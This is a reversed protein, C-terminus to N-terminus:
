KIIEIHPFKFYFYKFWFWHRHWWSVDGLFLLIGPMMISGGIGEGLEVSRWSRWLRSVGGLMKFIMMSICFLDLPSLILVSCLSECGALLVIPWFIWMRTWIFHGKTLNMFHFFAAIADLITHATTASLETNLSYVWMTFQITKFGLGSLNEVQFLGDITM